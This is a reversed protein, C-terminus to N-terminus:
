EVAEALRESLHAGVKEMPIRVQEMSDRERVTVAHDELSDFDLTICYPTGAEDQRRYRRGISGAEDYDCLVHRRLEDVLKEAHENLKKSLPLVAAKVPAIAPHFGLVVRQEGAVEEERYADALFALALRDVGLAPEIVHPLYKEQTQPDM